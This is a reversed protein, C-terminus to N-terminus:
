IQKQGIWLRFAPATEKSVYVAESVAPNMVVYIRGSESKFKEIARAHALYKRNIRFFGNGKLQQELEGLTRDIILIRGHVDRLFVIKHETYFYAIEEPTLAIFETGKRAVVRQSLQQHGQRLADLHTQLFHQQLRSVKTLTKQLKELTVPKLLYDISNYEFSELLYKDYATTFVVPFTPTVHDFIAFSHDDSLHIDIFAIDPAPNARLWAVSEKVSGVEGVIKLEADISTLMQILKARAPIEDEIILARM